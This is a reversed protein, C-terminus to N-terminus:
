VIKKATENNMMHPNPCIDLYFPSEKKSCVGPFGGFHNLMDLILQFHLHPHWKGNENSSGIFGLHSGKLIKDDTEFNSISELSLHAYLTFFKLGSYKHELILTPGFNGLGTNYKFSHVRGDLPSLIETGEQVWFDEGLHVYKDIKSDVHHTHCPFNRIEGYGGFAFDKNKVKTSIYLNLSKRKLDPTSIETNKYSLDIRKGSDLPFNFLPGPEINKLIESYNPKSVLIPNNLYKGDLFIINTFPILQDLFELYDDTIILDKILLNITSLHGDFLHQIEVFSDTSKSKIYRKIQDNM